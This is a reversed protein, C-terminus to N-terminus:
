YGQLDWDHIFNSTQIGAKRVEITKSDASEELSHQARERITNASLPCARGRGGRVAAMGPQNVDQVTHPLSQREQERHPLTHM